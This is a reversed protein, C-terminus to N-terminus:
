QHYDGDGVHMLRLECQSARRQYVGDCRMACSGTTWPTTRTPLGIGSDLWIVGRYRRSGSAFPRRSVSRRRVWSRSTASHLTTASVM